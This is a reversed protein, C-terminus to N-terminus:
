RISFETNNSHNNKDIDELTEGAKLRDMLQVESLAYEEEIKIKELQEGEIDFTVCLGGTFIMNFLHSVPFYRYYETALLQTGFLNNEIICLEQEEETEPILSRLGKRIEEVDFNIGDLFDLGIKVGNIRLTAKVKESVIKWRRIMSTRGIGYGEDRKLYSIRTFYKPEDLRILSNIKLTKDTKGSM